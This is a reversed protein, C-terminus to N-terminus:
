AGAERPLVGNRQLTRRSQEIAAALGKLGENPDDPDAGQQMQHLAKVAADLRAQVKARAEVMRRLAEEKPMRRRQAIRGTGMIEGDGEQRTYTSGLWWWRRPSVNIAEIERTMDAIALQHVAISQRLMEQPSMTEVAAVLARREPPVYHLLPNRNEGHLTKNDNGLPAGCRPDGKKFSGRNPGPPPKPRKRDGAKSAPPNAEAPAQPPESGGDAQAMGNEKLKHRLIFVARPTVNFSSGKKALLGDIRDAKEADSGDGLAIIRGQELLGRKVLEDYLGPRAVSVVGDGM